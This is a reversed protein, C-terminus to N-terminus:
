FEALGFRTQEKRKGKEENYQKIMWGTTKRARSIELLIFLSIFGYDPCPQPPSFFFFLFNWNLFLSCPIM